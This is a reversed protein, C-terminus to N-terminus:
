NIFTGDLSPDRSFRFNTAHFSSIQCFIDGRRRAQVNPRLRSDPLQNSLRSGGTRSIRSGPESMDGPARIDHGRIPQKHCDIQLKVVFLIIIFLSSVFHFKGNQENCPTNPIPNWRHWLWHPLPDRQPVRVMGRNQCTGVASPSAHNWWVAIHKIVLLVSLAVLVQWCTRSETHM